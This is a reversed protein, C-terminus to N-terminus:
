FLYEYNKEISNILIIMPILQQYNEKEFDDKNVIEGKQNLQVRFIQNAIKISYNRKTKNERMFGTNASTRMEEKTDFLTLKDKYPAGNYPCFTECNGCENCLKDLHLIQNSDKFYDSNVKIAINARNPCVEVCKNCLFNCEM